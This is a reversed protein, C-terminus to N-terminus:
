KRFRNPVEWTLCHVSGSLTSIKEVNMPVVRKNIHSKVINRVSTDSNLGYQPFYITSPTELMNIYLFHNEKFFLFVM